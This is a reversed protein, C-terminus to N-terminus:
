EKELKEAIEFFKWEKNKRLYREATLHAIEKNIRKWAEAFETPCQTTFGQLYDQAVFDDDEIRSNLQAAYLFHLLGRTHLLFSELLANRIVELTGKPAGVNLLEVTDRVLKATDRM